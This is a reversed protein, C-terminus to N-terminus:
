GEAETTRALVLRISQDARDKITMDSSFIAFKAEKLVERLKDIEGRATALALSEEIVHDPVNGRSAAAYIAGDSLVAERAPVPALAAPPVSILMAAYLDAVVKDHHRNKYGYLTDAMAAWMERTPERPVLVWDGDSVATAPPTPASSMAAEVRRHNWMGVPAVVDNGACETFESPCTAQLTGNYMLTKAAKGCFPCPKIQETVNM